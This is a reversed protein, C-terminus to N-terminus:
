SKEKCTGTTDSLSNIDMIETSVPLVIALDLLAAARFPIQWHGSEMKSDSQNEWSSDDFSNSSQWHLITTEM